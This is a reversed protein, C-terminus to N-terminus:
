LPMKRLLYENRCLDYFLSHCKDIIMELKHISTFLRDNTLRNVPKELEAEVDITYDVLPYAEEMDYERIIIAITNTSEVAFEIKLDEYQSKIIREVVTCYSELVDKTARLEFRWILTKAMCRIPFRTRAKPAMLHDTVNPEPVIITEGDAPPFIDNDNIDAYPLEEADVVVAEGSDDEPDEATAVPIPLMPYTKEGAVDANYYFTNIFVEAFSTDYYGKAYATFLDKDNLKIIPRTIFACWALIWDLMPMVIYETDTLPLEEQIGDLLTVEDTYRGIQVYRPLWAFEEDLYLLRLENCIYALSNISVIKPHTINKRATKNQRDRDNRAYIATDKHKNLLDKIVTYRAYAQDQQPTNPKGTLTKRMAQSAHNSTESVHKAENWYKLLLMRILTYPNASCIKRLDDEHVSMKAFDKFQVCKGEDLGLERVHQVTTRIKLWSSLVSISYLTETKM